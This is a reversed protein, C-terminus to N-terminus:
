ERGNRGDNEVVIEALRRRPERLAEFGERVLEGRDDRALEIHLSSSAPMPADRWAGALPGLPALRLFPRLCLGIASILTVGKTSTISTRSMINMTAAGSKVTPTGTSRGLLSPESSLLSLSGSVTVTSGCPLIKM